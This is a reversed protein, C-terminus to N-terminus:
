HAHRKRQQRARPGAPATAASASRATGAAGSADNRPYYRARGGFGSRSRRAYRADNWWGSSSRCYYQVCSEGSGGAGEQVGVRDRYRSRYM